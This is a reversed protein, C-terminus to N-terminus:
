PRHPNCLYLVECRACARDRGGDRFAVRVRDNPAAVADSSELLETVGILDIVGRGAPAGHEFEEFAFFQRTENRELYSSAGYRRRPLSHRRLAFRDDGPIPLHVLVMELRDREHLLQM